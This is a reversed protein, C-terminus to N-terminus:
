AAQALAVPGHVQLGPQSPPNARWQAIARRMDAEGAAWRRDISSKSFDFGKLGVEGPQYAYNMRYLAGPMDARLDWLQKMARATRNTQSAFTLDTQRELAEGLKRPLPAASPLPDAAFVSVPGTPAPGLVVDMPVNAALGGDVYQRGNITVAPFDPILATSAMIHDLDLPGDATDFPHEEGTLLDVTMATVRMRGSNLLALDVLDALTRRMPSADYLGPRGDGGLLDSLRLHYLSPRGAIRAQLAATTHFPKRWADPLWSAPGDLSAGRSWFERAAEARQGPPNGAVLAAMVAGISSGAVWDPEVGEAEMAAIVGGHYAGLANGGGLVLALVAEAGCSASAPGPAPGTATM